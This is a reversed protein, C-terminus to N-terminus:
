RLLPHGIRTGNNVGVPNTRSTAPQGGLSFGLFDAALVSAPSFKQAILTLLRRVGEACSRGQRNAVRGTSAM